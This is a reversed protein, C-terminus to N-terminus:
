REPKNKLGRTDRAKQLETNSVCCRGLTFRGIEAESHCTRCYAIMRNDATPGKIEVYRSGCNLCFIVSVFNSM